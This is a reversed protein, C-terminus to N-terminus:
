SAPVGKREAQVIAFVAGVVLAAGVIELTQLSESLVLAGLALAVVPNVYQHTVVTSIPLHELAYHYAALAVTGAVILYTLALLSRASVDGPREGAVLGAVTMVGGAALMQVTTAAWLGDVRPLGRGYFSGTSWLAASVLTLVMWAVPASGGAPAVLLVVIGTFGVAVGLLTMRPLREGSLRRWICVTISTTSALVAAINSPVHTESVTLLGPGGALLWIGLVSSGALQRLTPRARVALPLLIVGAVAFRLGAALLPPITEVGIRIALYTSGWVIYLLGMAAGIRLSM